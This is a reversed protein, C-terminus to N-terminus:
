EVVDPVPADVIQEVTRQQMCEQLFIRVDEVVQIQPVPVHVIQECIRESIRAKILQVVEVMKQIQPVPRPAM